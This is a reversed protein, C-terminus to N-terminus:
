SIRQSSEFHPTGALLHHRPHGLWKVSNPTTQQCQLSRNVIHCQLIWIWRRQSRKPVEGEVALYETWVPSFRVEFSSVMYKGRLVGDVLLIGFTMLVYILVSIAHRRVM